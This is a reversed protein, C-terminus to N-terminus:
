GNSRRHYVQQPFNSGYDGWKPCFKKLSAPLSVAPPCSLLPFPQRLALQHYGKSGRPNPFQYPLWHSSRPLTAERYPCLTHKKIQTHTHTHKGSCPHTKLTEKGSNLCGKPWSRLTAQSPFLYRQQNEQRPFSVKVGQNPVCPRGSRAGASRQLGM